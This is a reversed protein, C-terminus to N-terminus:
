RCSIASASVAKAALYKQRGVGSTREVRSTRICIASAFKQNGLIVPGGIFDTLM